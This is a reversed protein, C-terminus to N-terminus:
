VGEGRSGAPRLIFQSVPVGLEIGALRARLAREAAPDVPTRGLRLTTEALQAAGLGAGGAFRDVAQGLVLPDAEQSWLDRVQSLAHGSPVATEVRTVDSLNLAYIIRRGDDLSLYGIGRARRPPHGAAACIAQFDTDTLAGRLEVRRDHYIAAPTRSQCHGCIAQPEAGPGFALSDGCYGCTDVYEGGTFLVFPEVEKGCHHCAVRPEDFCLCGPCLYRRGERRRQERHVSQARAARYGAAGLVGMVGGIVCALLAGALVFGGLLAGWFLLLLAPVWWLDLLCRVVPNRSLVGLM